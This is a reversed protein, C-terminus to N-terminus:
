PRDESVLSQRLNLFAHHLRSKVTGSPVGLVTAIEDYTLGEIEHLVVTERHEVSLKAMAARLAERQIAGSEPNGETIAEDLTIEFRRKRSLNRCQNHAIGFLWTRLSSRQDFRKIAKQATVFTEQAADEALDSGVRRACFRFVDAYHEGVIRGMAERSGAAAQRIAEEM